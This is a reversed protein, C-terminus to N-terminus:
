RAAAGLAGPVKAIAARMVQTMAAVGLSNPHVHDGGDYSARIIGTAPDTLVADIDAVLPYQRLGANL